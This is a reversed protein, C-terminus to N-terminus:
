PRAAFLARTIKFLVREEGAFDLRTGSRVGGIKEMARQSRINEKAVLFVVTDVFQFAHRLLLRKMEANYGGGWHSRILFTGGAEIESAAENCSSFRTSGIVKGTKNDIVVFAGGSEIGRRFYESFVDRKYRDPQPHLQWILPDSAAVYLAEFDDARLPRLTLMEGRLTPQLDFPMPDRNECMAVYVKASM